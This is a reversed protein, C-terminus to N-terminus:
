PQGPALYYNTPGDLGPLDFSWPKPKSGAVWAPLVQQNMWPAGSQDFFLTPGGLSSATLKAVSRAEETIGEIADVASYFDQLGQQQVMSQTGGAPYLRKIGDADASSIQNNGPTYCQPNIGQKYFSAPFSYLMISDRDFPSQTSGDPNRPRLNRDIQAIPWYNPPGQLYAYIKDWDFETACPANPAQHEHQFGLLHGFEHLVVRTFGPDPPPNIDFLAFNMSQESQAALNVSDTGVLSWYGKYAFGVRAQNFAGTSCDRPSTMDGFDLPVYGGLTTWQSAIQAIRARLQPSGGFFCVKIPQSTDWVKLRAIFYNATGAIAPLQLLEGQASARAELHPPLAEIIFPYDEQALAPSAALITLVFAFAFRRM